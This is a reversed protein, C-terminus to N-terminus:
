ARHSRPASAAQQAATDDVLLKILLYRLDAEIEDLQEVRGARVHRAVLENTVIGAAAVDADRLPPSDPRLARARDAINRLIAQFRAYQRDREAIARQGAMPLEVFYARALLPRDQWWRLYVGIGRDLAALADAVTDREGAQSVLQAFLEDGMRECLAIFCETKDAFFGYFTNTSVRALAVVQTVTTGEYGREGVLEAMARLLRERQSAHVEERALKHRGRPLPEGQWPGFDAGSTVPDDL